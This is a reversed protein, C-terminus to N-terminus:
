ALAYWNQPKALYTQFMCMMINHSSYVEPTLYTLSHFLIRCRVGIDPKESSGARVSHRWVRLLRQRGWSGKQGTCDTCACVRCSRKKQWRCGRVQLQIFQARPRAAGSLHQLEPESDVMAGLDEGHGMQTGADLMHHM